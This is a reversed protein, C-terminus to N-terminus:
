VRERCSARGIEANPLYYNVGGTLSVISLPKETITALHNLLRSPTDGYGMNLYSNEGLKDAIYFAGAEALSETLDSVDGCSPIVYVDQLGYTSKIDSEIKLHDDKDKAIKFQIIGSNKAEALLKIVRMRTIGLKQGIDSQTMGEIYYYWAVKSMLDQNYYDPM